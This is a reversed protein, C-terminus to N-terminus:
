RALEGLRPIAAARARGADRDAIADAIERRHWLPPHIGEADYKACVTELIGALLDKLIPNYAANVVAIHFALDVDALDEVVVDREETLRRLIRVDEDTRRECALQVAEAELAHKVEFVYKMENVSTHKGFLGGIDTRARVFTGSGRRIELIGTSTLTKIAERVTNRGVGLVTMLEPESPIRNGVIWSGDIIQARMWDLSQVYASESRVVTM